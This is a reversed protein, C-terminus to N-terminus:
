PRVLRGGRGNCEGAGDTYCTAVLGLLRGEDSFVGAGSDFKAGGSLYSRAGEDVRVRSPEFRVIRVAGQATFSEAWQVWRDLKRPTTIEAYDRAKDVYTVRGRAAGRATRFWVDRTVYDVRGGSVCHAVTVITNPGVAVGGCWPFRELEPDTPEWDVFTRMIVISALEGAPNGQPPAVPPPTCKTLAFAAGLLLVIYVASVILTASFRRANMDLEAHFEPLTDREREEQTM